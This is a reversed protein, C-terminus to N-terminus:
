YMGSNTLQDCATLQMREIRLNDVQTLKILASGDVLTGSLNLEKLQSANLQIFQLIYYYTLVSESADQQSDPYFKRYLGNHFSIHCGSLDLRQLNPMASVIRSFLADSLYRNNCLSISTVHKCAKSIADRDGSNKFLRGSMFLERCNNIELSQLNVLRKVISNFVKERLDCNNFTIKTIHESMGDWFEDAPGFDVQHLNIKSYIRDCNRFDHIPSQIDCGSGLHVRSFTLELKRVFEKHLSAEYWRHCTLGAETVDSTNLYGM